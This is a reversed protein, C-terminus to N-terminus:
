EKEGEATILVSQVCSVHLSKLGLSPPASCTSLDQELHDREVGYTLVTQQFGLRPPSPSKSLYLKCADSCCAAAGPFHTTIAAFAFSSEEGEGCDKQSGVSPLLECVGTDCYDGHRILTRLCNCCWLCVCVCVVMGNRAINPAMLFFGWHMPFCRSLSALLLM